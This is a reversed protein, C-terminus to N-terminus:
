ETKPNFVISAENEGDESVAVILTRGDYKDILGELIERAVMECSGVIPLRAAREQVCLYGQIISDVDRRLIFFEIERDDHKVEVSVEVKFLHRHLDRLFGVEDPADKWQHLGEFQTKVSVYTRQYM